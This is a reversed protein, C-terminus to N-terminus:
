LESLVPDDPTLELARTLQAAAADTDESARILAARVLHAARAAPTRAQEAEQAHLDSLRPLDGQRRAERHLAWSAPAYNPSSTVACVFADLREASGAPLSFGERLYTFAARTGAANDAELRYAYAAEENPLPARALARLVFPERAALESAQQLADIRAVEHAGDPAAQQLQRECEAMALLALVRTETRGRESEARLLERLADYRGLEASADIALLHASSGTEEKAAQDLWGLEEPTTVESLALKAAAALAGRGAEEAAAIEALRANDGAKRALSERTVAVLGLSPDALAAQALQEDAQSLEGSEALLEAHTLLALAREEGSSGLAWSEAASLRLATDPSELAIQAATRLSIDDSAHELLEVAEAHAGERGLMQAARRRVAEAVPGIDFSELTRLLARAAESHAGLAHDVRSLSLQADFASPDHAAARAYQVRAGARDGRAEIARGASVLLAAALAGDPTRQALPLLSADVRGPDTALEIRALLFNPGVLEPALQHAETAAGLAAPADHEITWRALAVQSLARARQSATGPLAALAELLELHREQDDARFALRALAKLAARPAATRTREYLREAQEREGLEEALEAASLLLEAQQAGEHKHALRELRDLRARKRTTQASDPADDLDLEGSEAVLELVPSSPTRVLEAPPEYPGAPVFPRLTDGGPAAGLAEDLSRAEDLATGLETTDDEDLEILGEPEEVIDIDTDLEEEDEIDLEIPEDSEAPLTPRVRMGRLASAEPPPAPPRAPPTATSSAVPRETPAVPPLTEDPPPSSPEPPPRTREPPTLTEKDLRPDALALVISELDTESPQSLRSLDAPARVTEAQRVPMTPNPNAPDAALQDNDPAAPVVPTPLH